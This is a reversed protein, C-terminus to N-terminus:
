AYRGPLREVSTAEGASRFSQVQYSFVNPHKSERAIDSTALGLVRDRVRERDKVTFM